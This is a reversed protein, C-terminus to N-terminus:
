HFVSCLRIEKLRKMGSLMVYCAKFHFLRRAKSCPRKEGYVAPLSCRAGSALAVLNAACGAASFM